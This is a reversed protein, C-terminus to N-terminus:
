RPRPLTLIDGLLGYHDGGLRSLPNLKRADIQLRGAEGEAAISDDIWASRVLGFIIMQEGAEMLRYRECAFAVRCDGLRPLPFDGFPVTALGLQEPESLGAALPASSANVAEAQDAHAIHVVFHGREIINRRTDKDSGDPKKGISIMLLPPDSSVANFYSFPALNYSAGDATTENASLVWAIPRPILTQILTFYVRNPSLSSLDILM